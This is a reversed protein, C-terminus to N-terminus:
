PADPHAPYLVRSNGRGRGSRSTPRNTNQKDPIDSEYTSIDLGAKPLKYVNKQARQEATPPTAPRPDFDEISTTGLNRRMNAGGSGDRKGVPRNSMFKEPTEFEDASGVMLIPVMVGGVTHSAGYDLGHIVGIAPLLFKPHTKASRGAAPSATAGAGVGSLIQGGPGRKVAMEDTYNLYDLGEKSIDMDFTVGNGHNPAPENSAEQALLCGPALALLFLLARKM